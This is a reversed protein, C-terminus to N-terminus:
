KVFGTAERWFFPDFDIPRRTLVSSWFSKKQWGKKGLEKMRTTRWEALIGSEDLSPDATLFVARETPATDIYNWGADLSSTKEESAAPKLVPKNAM